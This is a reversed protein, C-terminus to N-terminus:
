GRAYKHSYCCHRSCCACCGTAGHTRRRRTSCAAASAPAPAAGESAVATRTVPQSAAAASPGSHVSRGTCGTSASRQAASRQAARSSRRQPRALSRHRHRSVACRSAPQSPASRLGRPFSPRRGNRRPWQGRRKKKRMGWRICACVCECVIMRGVSPQRIKDEGAGSPDRVSRGGSRRGSLKAECGCGM